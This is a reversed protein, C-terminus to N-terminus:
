KTMSLEYKICGKIDDNDSLDRYVKVWKDLVKKSIKKDTHPNKCSM